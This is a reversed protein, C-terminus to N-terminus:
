KKTQVEDKKAGFMLKWMFYGGGGFMLVLFIIIGTYNADPTPTDKIEDAYALGMMLLSFFFAFLKAVLIEV